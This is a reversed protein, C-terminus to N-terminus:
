PGVDRAFRRVAESFGAPSDLNSLHAAGRLRVRRVDRTAAAFGRGGPRFLLDWAGDLLLVPGPYAALAPRFRRGAIARLAAAGGASSFGGDVVPDAIAAPYRARFFWRSFRDAARGDRWALASALVGFPIAALGVPDLTAGAIVLGRVSDPRRAALTMAVYGGLSLGVVIARGGAAEDITSALDDAAGALTFPEGTRRGHGPLDPTIVRFDGALRAVQATWMTRSLRTGHVLVIPPADAPGAVDPGDGDGAPVRGLGAM